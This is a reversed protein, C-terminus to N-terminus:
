ANDPVEAGDMSDFRDSFAWKLADAYGHWYAAASGEGAEVCPMEITKGEFCVLTQKEMEDSKARLANAAHICLLSRCSRFQGRGKYPCDNCSSSGDNTCHELAEVIERIEDM